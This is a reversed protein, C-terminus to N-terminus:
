AKSRAAVPVALHKYVNPGLILASSCVHLVLFDLPVPLARACAMCAYFSFLYIAGTIASRSVLHLKASWRSQGWLGHGLYGNSLLNPPGQLRDPCKKLFSLNGAM